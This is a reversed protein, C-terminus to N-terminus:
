KKGKKLFEEIMEEQISANCTLISDTELMNVKKGDIRTTVGGVENVIIMGAAIDWPSLCITLYGDLVGEAVYAFDLAASGYTRTARVRKVLSQMTEEEILRNNFLSRHNLGLMAEELVLMDKLPELLQDDKYAGADKKASYLINDMVDYILGIEGVGEHYIGVSIAFNRRQHVFNMTGDIPDIIWVIGSLSTLDDGFGEESLLSHEPYKERICTSFFEETDKDVTTVLDKRSTKTHIILPDNMQKRIREGAELVWEKAQNFLSERLEKDM